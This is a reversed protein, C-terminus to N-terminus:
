ARAELTMAEKLLVFQCDLEGMRAAVSGLDGAKGAKEMESALARLAEGGVNAAAGKLLHAQREAGFADSVDLYRQLTKIQGPIDCLFGETIVRALNEDNMLRDLMGARDFVVPSSSDLRHAPANGGNIGESDDSIKPLWRTLVQILAQPSVPKPIYDNMGADLCRQRDGQLAHATMAIIPIQHNRVASDLSRAQRTAEFGDLVPMQVDMLVLDYDTSTLATIAEAGNAVVDADLGLKNLIGVAVLQNTISDEALLIHAHIGAFSRILEHAAHSRLDALPYSQTKAEDSQRNLRVTFWFESGHDEQSVVGIEGGMMKALQESIALGLGTGGYKRTTSADVQTFKDFLIGIKNEPIGIGTDRVSFRLLVQNKTEEAVSVRVGVEGKATFKIANGVLNTLIQRLRGPDGRLLAPVTADASCFLKLGKERARLSLTSVFDELLRPLDFDMTELELRGAEIKSFDLIDNLLHLLSKGSDRVIEMYRRQQENLETDLLLGTMGIVGNMPTRIEHSMNALFESKARNAAEAAEKAQQLELEYKKRETVDRFIGRASVFKGASIQSNNIGDLVVPTGSKTLFNIEVTKIEEGSVLRQLLDAAQSRTEAPALDIFRRVKLEEESYGLTKRAAPNAYLFRGERDISMVLDNANEFIERYQEELYTERRQKQQITETQQAVRHRLALVWGLVALFAFLSIGFAELTHRLTWWSPKRVVVIDSTEDVLLRFSQNRGNDDRLVEVVGTVQLVSDLPLSDTHATDAQALQLASFIISDSQLLLAKSGRALSREVLRAAVRVLSGDYDGELIQEATVRKPSPALGSSSVHFTADDLMPRLEFVSPFGIVDVHDGAQLPTTQRTEIRLSGRGDAIYLLHGPQWLTVVGSVHLRHGFTSGPSFKQVSALPEQPEDFPQRPAPRVVKILDFRPVNLLVGIIQNKENFLAGCTGAIQVESDVIDGPIPEHFDPVMARVRGGSVAIELVLFDSRVEVRRVTGSLEVWQSDEAGAAMRDFGARHPMPLPAHGVLKWNAKGIQPAVDPQESVGDIEILDGARPKPEVSATNVFIGATSDQIFMSPTAPGPLTEEGGFSPERADYYTVVARLRVPYGRNAQQFSLRRIQEVKTLTPLLASNASSVMQAVSLSALCLLLALMQLAGVLVGAGAVGLPWLSVRGKRGSAPPLCLCDLRSDSIRDRKGTLSHAVIAVQM